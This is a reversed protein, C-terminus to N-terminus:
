GGWPLAQGLSASRPTKNVGPIRIVKPLLSENTFLGEKFPPPGIGLRARQRYLCAKNTVLPLHRTGLKKLSKKPSFQYM